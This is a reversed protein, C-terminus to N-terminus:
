TVVVALNFEEEMGAVIAERKTEKTNMAPIRHTQELCATAAVHSLKLLRFNGSVVMVSAWTTSAPAKVGDPAAAFKGPAAAELYLSSGAKQRTVAVTFGVGSESILISTQIGSEPHFPLNWPSPLPPKAPTM